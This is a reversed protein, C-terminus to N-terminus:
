YQLNAKHINMGVRMPSDTWKLEKFEPFDSDYVQFTKDNSEWYMDRGLGEKRKPKEYHFWLSGNLDRAVYGIM